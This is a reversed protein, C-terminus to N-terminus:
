GFRTCECRRFRLESTAGAAVLLLQSDEVRVEDILLEERM